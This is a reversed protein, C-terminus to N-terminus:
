YSAWAGRAYELRVIGFARKTAGWFKSESIHVSVAGAERIGWLEFSSNASSIGFPGLEIQDSSSPPRRATSIRTALATRIRDFVAAFATTDLRSLTPLLPPDRSLVDATPLVATLIMWYLPFLLVVAIAAAVGTLAFSPRRSRM